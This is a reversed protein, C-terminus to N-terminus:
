YINYLTFDNRDSNISGYQTSLGNAYDAPSNSNYLASGYLIVIVKLSINCM